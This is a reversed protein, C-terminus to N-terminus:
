CAFDLCARPESIVLFYFFHCCDHQMVEGLGCLAFTTKAIENPDEKKCRWPETLSESGQPLLMVLFLLMSLHCAPVRTLLRLRQISWPHWNLCSDGQHCRGV